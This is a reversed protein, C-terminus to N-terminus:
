GLKDDSSLITASRGQRKQQEILSQKRRKKEIDGEDPMVTPEVAKPIVVKNKKARKDAAADSRNSTYATGGASILSSVLVGALGSVM